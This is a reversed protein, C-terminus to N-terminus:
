LDFKLFNCKNKDSSEQLKKFESWDKYWDKLTPEIYKKYSFELFHKADARSKAYVYCYSREADFILENGPFEEECAEEVINAAEHNDHMTGDENSTGLFEAFNAGVKYSDQDDDFLLEEEDLVGEIKELFNEYYKLYDDVHNLVKLYKKILDHLEILKFIDIENVQGNITFVANTFADLQLFPIKKEEIKKM